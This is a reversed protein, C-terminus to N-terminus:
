RDAASGPMGAAGKRFLLVPKTLHDEVFVGLGLALFVDGLSIVSGPFPIIDALFALETSDDLVVHKPDLASPDFTGGALEVAQALVPMGNNAGIVTFNMLIGIGAIWLGQQDKNLWVVALLPVFSAMVLIVPLRSGDDPAATAGIQMGLVLVLMWWGSLHLDALNALKGGRLVAVLMSVVVVAIMWTM